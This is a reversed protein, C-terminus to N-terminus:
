EHRLAAIPDIRLARLAPPVTAALAVAFLVAAVALFNEPDATRIEPTLFMALPRVAFVALALGIAIGAGALSASQRLVLGLVSRPNAGLAVRLGIERIRRSVSYLLVGYLGIAALALGLVGVSGLIAAGFRSPLLAFVLAQSMPKTEIAATPDLRGLVANVAATLPEPRGAARILFHVSSGRTGNRQAYPEYYAPMNGEGLRFYKSNKAIGVIQVSREFWTVTHGIPDARGFLRRAMEQNLIAVAPSGQGDTPLFERGRVIPIQMVHFYGPGVNNCRFTVQMPEAALDTKVPVGKTMNDNLPVVSVLAASDVGPTARLNELANDALASIKRPETYADPVLRMAAWLTHELDFGPNGTSARVLNRVFLLGASLLVISVAVQGIVLANQLTWRGSVQREGRKMADSLGARTARLAPALGAAFCSVIALGASYALLSRDPEIRYQLPIPLILRIRSIATTLAFNLALGAAAGCAALLLSEALLQRILRGRGAGISLRIALEQGRSSARALLLSAVNACAILLVLGVVILLMAFFAAIAVIDSDSRIRDMGSVASVSIDRAWRHRDPPNPGDLVRCASELRAYAIARTMEAPLRAVLSVRADDGITPVYIDPSFGFGTVTRHDRPLVGAITYLRGDLIMKRGPVNPDGGLRRQWLGYSLVVTDKEGPLM